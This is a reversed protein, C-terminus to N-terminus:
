HISRVRLSANLDAVMAEIDDLMLPERRLELFAPDEFQSVYLGDNATRPALEVQVGNMVYLHLLYANVCVGTIRIVLYNTGEDWANCVDDFEYPDVEFWTAVRYEGGIVPVGIVARIFRRQGFTIFNKKLKFASPEEHILVDPLRFSFDLEELDCGYLHWRPMPQHDDFVAEFRRMAAEVAAANDEWLAADRPVHEADGLLTPPFEELYQPRWQTKGGAEVNVRFGFLGRWGNITTRAVIRIAPRNASHSLFVEVAHSGAADRITGSICPLSMGCSCDCAWRRVTEVTFTSSM